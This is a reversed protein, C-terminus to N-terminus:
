STPVLRLDDLWVSGTQGGETTEVILGVRVSAANSATTFSITRTQWRDLLLPNSGGTSVSEETVAIISGVSDLVYVYLRPVVKTNTTRAAASLEYQQSPSVTVSANRELRSITPGTATNTFISMRISGANRYGMVEDYVKETTLLTSLVEFSYTSAIDIYFAESFTSATVFELSLSDANIVAANDTQIQLEEQMPSYWYLDSGSASGFLGVARIIGWNATANPFPIDVNNKITRSAADYTWKSAEVAQRAYGTSSSSVEVGASSDTPPTTFLGVYATVSFSEKGVLEKLVKEVASTTLTGM